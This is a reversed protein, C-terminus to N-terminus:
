WDQISLTHIARVASINELVKKHKTYPWLFKLLQTKSSLREYTLKKLELTSFYLSFM